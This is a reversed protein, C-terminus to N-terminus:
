EIMETTQSSLTCGPAYNIGLVVLSCPYTASVVAPQGSASTLATQCTADTDCDTGNVTVEITINSATLNHASSNIQNVTNTLPTATGRSLALQRTGDAVAATLVVYNNLVLGFQATGVALLLLFPVVLAFEVAAVGARDKALNRLRRNLV